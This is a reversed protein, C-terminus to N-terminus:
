PTIRNVYGYVNMSNYTTSELDIGTILTSSTGNGSITLGPVILTLGSNPKLYYTIEKTSLTIIVPRPTTDYSPAGYSAYIWLEDLVVSSTGTQHLNTIGNNNSTLLIGTGTADESLKIKEYTAM